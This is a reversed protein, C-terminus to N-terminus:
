AWVRIAWEQGLGYAYQGLGYAYAVRVVNLWIMRTNGLAMRTHGSVLIELDAIAKGAVLDQLTSIFMDTLERELMSPQVRAALERWRQAYEKFSESSKQCLSQLQTRSPAMDM